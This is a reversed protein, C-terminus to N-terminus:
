SAYANMGRTPQQSAPRSLTTGIRARALIRRAHKANLVRVRGVGSELADIMALTKTRMGGSISGEAIRSELEHPTARAILEGSPGLVGDQDTLFILEDAQLAIAVRAAAWDANVNLKEGETGSGLPAIVPVKGQKLVRLIPALEVEQVTGVLGLALHSRICRLIGEGGSLGQAPIGGLALSGVLLGNIERALVDEIVEMMEPTTRRQGNVFTWSIGRDSLGRNIAPGGGHVIVVRHGTARLGQVLCVLEQQSEQLELSSGGQKIVITKKM